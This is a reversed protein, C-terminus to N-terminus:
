SGPSSVEEWSISDQHSWHRYKEHRRGDGVGYLDGARVRGEDPGGLRGRGEDLGGVRGRGEDLGGARGQGEDPGGVRGRGEDHSATKGRGLFDFM